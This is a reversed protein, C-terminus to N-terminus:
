TEWWHTVLISMTEHSWKNLLYKFVLLSSLTKTKQTVLKLIMHCCHYNKHKMIRIKELYQESSLRRVCWYKFIHYVYIVTSFCASRKPICHAQTMCCIYPQFRYLKKREFTIWELSSDSFSNLSWCVQWPGPRAPGPRASILFFDRGPGAREARKSVNKWFM